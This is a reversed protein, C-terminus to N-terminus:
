NNKKDKYNKLSPERELSPKLKPKKNVAEIHTELSKSNQFVKACVKCKTREKLIHASLKLKDVFTINCSDCKYISNSGQTTHFRKDHVKLLYFTSPPKAFASLCQCLPHPPDVLQQCNSVLRLPPALSLYM